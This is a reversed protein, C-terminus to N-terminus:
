AIAIVSIIDPNVSNASTNVTLISSSITTTSYLTIIRNLNGATEGATCVVSNNTSLATTYTITFNGLSNRTVSSVNGSGNITMAAPNTGATSGDFRVWARIAYLPANGPPAAFAAGGSGLALIGALNTTGIGVNGSIILSNVPTVTNIYNGISVNSSALKQTTNTFITNFVM